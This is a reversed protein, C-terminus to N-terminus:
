TSFKASNLISFHWLNRNLDEGKLQIALKTNSINAEVDLAIKM